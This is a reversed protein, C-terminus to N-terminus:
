AVTEVLHHKDTSVFYQMQTQPQPQPQKDKKAISTIHTKKTNM